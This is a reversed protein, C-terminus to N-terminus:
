VGAITAEGASCVGVSTQQDIMFNRITECTAVPACSESHIDRNVGYAALGVHRSLHGGSAQVGFRISRGIPSSKAGRIM